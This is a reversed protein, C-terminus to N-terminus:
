RFSRIKSQVTSRESERDSSFGRIAWGTALGLDTACYTTLFFLVVTLNLDACPSIIYVLDGVGHDMSSFNAAVIESPWSARWNLASGEDWTERLKSRGFM